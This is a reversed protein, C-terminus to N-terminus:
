MFLLLRYMEFMIVNQGLRGGPFSFSSKRNFGIGYGFYGYKDIDPNKTLRVAGFM